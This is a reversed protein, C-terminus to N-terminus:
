AGEAGRGRGKREGKGEGAGRRGEGGRGPWMVHPNAALLRPHTKCLSARREHIFIRIPPRTASLGRGGHHGCPMVESQFGILPPSPFINKKKRLRRGRDRRSGQVARLLNVTGPLVTDPSRAALLVADVPKGLRMEM